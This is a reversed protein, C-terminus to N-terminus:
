RVWRFKVTIEQNLTYIYLIIIQLKVKLLVCNWRNHSATTPDSRSRQTFTTLVLPKALVKTYTNQDIKGEGKMVLSINLSLIREVVTAASTDSALPARSLKRGTKEGINNRSDKLM